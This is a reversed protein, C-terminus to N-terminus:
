PVPQGGAVCFVIEPNGQTTFSNPGAICHFFRGGAATGSFGFSGLGSTCHQFLGSAVGNTGAGFSSNLAVCQTFTGSATGNNAFSSNGGTCRIFTGSAVGGTSSGFSSDGGTCNIFTGSATGGNGAFSATSGTCNIFTGSATGGGGGFGAGAVSCNIFTGSATGGGGAFGSGGATCDIFTGSAIGTQGFGRFGGDTNVYTGSYNITIGTRMAQANMGDARFRCNRIVTNPLNSNPFYAAPDSSNFSLGGGSRTCEVFVNSIRVHDATQTLVGSGPGRTTGFIHQQEPDQSLGEIDVFPTDLVLESSGLDYRGPALLVVVRNHESLPQNYPTKEKALEYAELLNNGNFDARSSTRVLVHSQGIRPLVDATNAKLVLANDVQTRTYVEATDAKLALADDVSATDAKTDLQSQVSGTIGALSEFEAASVAGGGIADVEISLAEGAVRAFPVSHVRIREPFVDSETLGSADESSDLALEYWAAPAELVLAPPELPIAFLGSPSLVTQGVIDGGLQVGDVEADFFRVRYGRMGTLPQGLDNLLQGQILVTEPPQAHATGAGLLLVPGMCAIFASLISRTVFAM